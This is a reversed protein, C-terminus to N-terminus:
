KSPRKRDFDALAETMKYMRLIAQASPNHEHVASALARAFARKADIYRGLHNEIQGLHQLRATNPSRAILSELEKRAEEYRGSVELCYVLADAVEYDNPQIALALRYDEIAASYEALEQEAGGRERLVYLVFPRPRYRLSSQSKLNRQMWPSDLVAMRQALTRQTPFVRALVAGNAEVAEKRKGERRLATAYGALAPLFNSDAHLQATTLATDSRWMPVDAVSLAALIAIISIPVIWALVPSSRDAIESVAADLLLGAIGAVGFLPIAARYCAVFQSPIPVINLCPLLMLTTWLFLIRVSLSSWTQRMAAIWVGAAFFGAFATAPQPRDWAGLSSQHITDPTPWVLCRAFYWLTRGVMEIREGLGWAVQTASAHWGVTDIAGVPIVSRATFLYGIVPLAYLLMWVRFPGPSTQANRESPAGVRSLLPVLLVLPICQEKTLIAATFAALSIARWVAALRGTSSRMAAIVFGFLFLLALSDTRGGIFTTVPVQLPHLGYLLGALLATRRRRLMMGFCVCAELVVFGHLALNEVHFARPAQGHINEGISFSAGMIPRYYLGFQPHKFCDIPNRGCGRAYANHLLDHDDIVESGNISRINVLCSLLAIAICCVLYRRNGTRVPVDIASSSLKTEAFPVSAVTQVWGVTPM